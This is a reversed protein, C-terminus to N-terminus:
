KYGPSCANGAKLINRTRLLLLMYDNQPIVANTVVLYLTAGPALHMILCSLIVSSIEQFPDDYKHFHRNPSSDKVKNVLRGCHAYPSARWHWNYLLVRLRIECKNLTDVRNNLWKRSWQEEQRPQQTPSLEQTVSVIFALGCTASRELTKASLARRTPCCTNYEGKRSRRSECLWLNPWPILYVM